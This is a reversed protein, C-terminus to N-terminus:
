KKRTPIVLFSTGNLSKASYGVNAGHQAVSLTIHTLTAGKGSAPVNFTYPFSIVAETSATTKTVTVSGFDITKGASTRATLALDVTITGAGGGGVWSAVSIQGTVKRTSDLKVPIGAKGTDYDDFVASDAQAFVEDVPLGGVTGCGDSGDAGSKPELRGPEQTGGCGEARLYFKASTPAAANAHGILAISGLSAAAIALRLARTAVSM